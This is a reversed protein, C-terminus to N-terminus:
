IAHNPGYVKYDYWLSFPQIEERFYGDQPLLCIEFLSDEEAVGAYHVILQDRDVYDGWVFAAQEGNKHIALHNNNTYFGSWGATLDITQGAAVNFDYVCTREEFTKGIPVLM